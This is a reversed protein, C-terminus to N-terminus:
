IYSLQPVQDKIMDVVRFVGGMLNPFIQGLSPLMGSLAAIAVLVLIILMAIELESETIGRM